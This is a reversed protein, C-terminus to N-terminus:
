RGRCPQASRRGSRATGPPRWRCPSGRSRASRRSRPPGRILSIVGGSPGGAAACPARAHVSAAALRAPLVEGRPRRHATRHAPHDRSRAAAARPRPLLLHPLRVTEIRLDHMAGGAVPSPLRGPGERAAAGQAELEAVRRDLALAGRTRPPCSRGRLARRADPVARPRDRRVPLVARRRADDRLQLRVHVRADASRSRRLSRGARGPGPSRAM